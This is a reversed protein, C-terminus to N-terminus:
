SGNNDEESVLIKKIKNKYESNQEQNLYEEVIKKAKKFDIKLLSYAAYYRIIPSNDNLKQKIKNFFRKEKLNAAALMANRLLIRSGRWTVATNDLEAPVEKSELNLFYELNKNFFQLKKAASAKSKKNYPCVDKCDDCGWIHHGIKKIESETLIGKKQTLYATCDEAALLNAEKLAQVQCSELCLRCSGCDLDLPQDVAIELDTFIEGLFLNSGLKPNILLTNKGIFGLGAKQALAKELFPAQDVFIKYNFSYNLKQQLRSALKELKNELYSHYDEVTVYNSLFLNAENHNYSVAAAIISKLNPFHLVPTTLEELNQNAFPQPWFQGQSREKLIEFETELKQNDTVRCIDINLEAACEKVLKNIQM